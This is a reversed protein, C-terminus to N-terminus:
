YTTGSRLAKGQSSRALLVDRVTKSGGLADLHSLLSEEYQFERILKQIFLNDKIKDQQSDWKREHEGTTDDIIYGIMWGVQMYDM